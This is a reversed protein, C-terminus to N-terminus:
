DAKKAPQATATPEDGKLKKGARELASGTAHVAKEAAKGTKDAAKELAVGTKKAAHDVGKGAREVPGEANRDNHCAPLLLSFALAVLRAQNVTCIRPRVDIKAL